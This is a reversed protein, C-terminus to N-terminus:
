VFNQVTDLFVYFFYLVDKQIYNRLIKLTSAIHNKVTNKSILLQGAVQEYSMGEEKCLEYVILQQPTLLSKAKTIKLSVEIETRLDDQYANQDKLSHYLHKKFKDDKQILRLKNICNNKTLVFIFFWVDMDEKLKQRNQWVITFVDQIVDQAWNHDKLLLLATNLARNYYYCICNIM